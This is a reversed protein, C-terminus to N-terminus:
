LHPLWPESFNPLKGLTMSSVPVLVPIPVQHLKADSSIGPVLPGESYGKCTQKTGPALSRHLGLRIMILM